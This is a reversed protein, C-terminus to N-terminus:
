KSRIEPPLMTRTPSGGRRTEPLDFIMANVETEPGDTPRSSQSEDAKSQLGTPNLFLISLLSPNNEGTSLTEGKM